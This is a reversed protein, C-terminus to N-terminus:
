QIHEASFLPGRRGSVISSAPPLRAIPFWSRNSASFSHWFARILLDAGKKLGGRGGVREDESPSPELVNSPSRHYQYCWSTTPLIADKCLSLPKLLQGSTRAQSGKGDFSLPLGYLRRWNDSCAARPNRVRSPASQSRPCPLGLGLNYMCYRQLLFLSVRAALVLRGLHISLPPKWVFRLCIFFCGLNCHGSM